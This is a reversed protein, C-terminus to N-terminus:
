IDTWVTQLKVSSVVACTFLLKDNKLMTEQLQYPSPTANRWLACKITGSYNKRSSCGAGQQACSMKMTLVNADELSSQFCGSTVQHWIQHTCQTISYNSPLWDVQSSTHAPVSGQHSLM